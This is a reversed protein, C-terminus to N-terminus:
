KTTRWYCSGKDLVFSLKPSLESSHETLRDGPPSLRALADEQPRREVELQDVLRTLLGCLGRILRRPDCSRRPGRLNRNGRGYVHGVLHGQREGSIQRAKPLSTCGAHAPIRGRSQIDMPIICRGLEMAMQRNGSDQRYIRGTEHTATHVELTAGYPLERAREDIHREAARQGPCDASSHAFGSAFNKRCHGSSDCSTELELVGFRRSLDLRCRYWVVSSLASTGVSM